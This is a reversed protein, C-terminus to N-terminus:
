SRGGLRKAQKPISRARSKDGSRARHERRVAQSQQEARLKHYSAMREADLGERVACGPEERHTCDRFRCRAALALVDDFAHGLGEGDTWLQLERWGPTDVLVAGGPLRILERRTTSHQGRGDRTRVERTSQVDRGLLRNVLTSKGVGSSGILAATRGPGLYSALAELGSGGKASLVHVPVGPAATRAEAAFVEPDPCADAKNLLIVPAAGSEWALVLSREIRRLNFDGDLGCVLFLTDVNAAVVQEDTTDGARKRSFAGKRPLVALVVAAAARPERRVAVWDGVAPLDAARATAHRLRGSLDARMEGAATWVVYIDRQASAVRGPVCGDKEHERFPEAFFSDWGLAELETM